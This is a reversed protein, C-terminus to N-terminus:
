GGEERRRSVWKSVCVSVLGGAAAGLGAVAVAPANRALPNASPGLSARKVYASGQSVRPAPHRDNISPIFTHTSYRHVRYQQVCQTYQTSNTYEDKSACYHVCQLTYVTYYPRHALSSPSIFSSNLHSSAHIIMLSRREGNHYRSVTYIEGEGRGKASM